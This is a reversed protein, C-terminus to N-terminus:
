DVPEPEPKVLFYIGTAILVGIILGIVLIHWNAFISSITDKM